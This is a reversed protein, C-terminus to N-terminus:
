GVWSYALLRALDKRLGDADARAGYAMVLNGQPDVLYIGEEWGSEGGAVVTTGPDTRVAGSGRAVFVRQVRDQGNGQAVHAQRMQYLSLRCDALCDAPGFYLLTWKSGFDGLRVTKGGVTGLVVRAAPLPPQVLAGHAAAPPPRWGSFYLGAAVAAPLAFLVALLALIRRSGSAVNAVIENM